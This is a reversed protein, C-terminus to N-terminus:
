IKKTSVTVGMGMSVGMANVSIDMNMSSFMGSARDVILKGSVKAEGIGSINGAIDAYVQKSTIKTIKYTMKINIGNMSQEQDWTSGIKVPETPYVISTFQNQGLMAGAGKLEPVMKAATIKGTKNITQYMITEMAPAIDAKMKREEETLESDKKDSDFKINEGQATVDMKMRAIQYQMDISNGKVATTQMDMNMDIDMSVIPAMNQKLNVDISYRDGKKLKYELKVSQATANFAVLFLGFFAIRKMTKM